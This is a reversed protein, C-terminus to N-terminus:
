RRPVLPTYRGHIATTHVNRSIIVFHLAFLLIFTIISHVFPTSQQPTGCAPQAMRSGMRFPSHIEVCSRAPEAASRKRPQTAFAGRLATHGQKCVRAVAFFARTSRRKRSRVDFSRGCAAKRKPLRRLCPPPLDCAQWLAPPDFPRLGRAAFGPLRPSRVYGIRQPHASTHGEYWGSCKQSEVQM